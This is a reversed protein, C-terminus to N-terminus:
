TTTKAQIGNAFPVDARESFTCIRKQCYATVGTTSITGHACEFFEDDISQSGSAAGPGVVIEVQRLRLFAGTEALGHVTFHCCFFRGPEEGVAASIWASWLKLSGAASKQPPNKKMLSLDGDARRIRPGAGAYGM